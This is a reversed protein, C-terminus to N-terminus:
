DVSLKKIMYGPADAIKNRRNFLNYRSHPWLIQPAADICEDINKLDTQVDNEKFFIRLKKTLATAISDYSATEEAPITNIDITKFM